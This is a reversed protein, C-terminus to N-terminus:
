PWASPHYMRMKVGKDRLRFEIAEVNSVTFSFNYLVRVELNIIVKNHLSFHIYPLYKLSIRGRAM